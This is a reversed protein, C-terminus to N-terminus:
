RTSPRTSRSAWTAPSRATSCGSATPSNIERDLELSNGRGTGQTCTAWEGVGDVTLIAAEEFPSAFFASAGHSVHHECFLVPKRKWGLKKGVVRRISLKERMWLPIAQIFQAKSKPFHQLHSLLIRELKLMPKDYFGLYDVDDITIGAAGLVFDIANEPFSPDHKIRTFREESAAAVLRGDRLLAAASDHYFCSLGLIWVPM